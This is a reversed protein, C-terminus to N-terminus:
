GNLFAGHKSVLIVVLFLVQLIAATSAITVGAKNLFKSVAEVEGIRPIAMTYAVPHMLVLGDLVLNNEKTQYFPSWM